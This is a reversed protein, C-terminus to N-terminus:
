QPVTFRFGIGHITEIIVEPDAKLYKRLKTIYVDM